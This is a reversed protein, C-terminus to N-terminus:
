YIYKKLRKTELQNKNCRELMTIEPVDLFPVYRSCYYFDLEQHPEFKHGWKKRKFLFFGGRSRKKKAIRRFFAMSNILWNTLLLLLVFLKFLEQFKFLLQTFGFLFKSLGSLCLFTILFSHNIKVMFDTVSAKVKTTDINKKLWLWNTYFTVNIQHPDQLFMRTMKITNRPNKDHDGHKIFFYLQLSSLFSVM